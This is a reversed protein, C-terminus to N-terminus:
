PVLRWGHGGLRVTGAHSSSAGAADVGDLALSLESGARIRLAKGSRRTFRLRITRPTGPELLVVRASTGRRRGDSMSLDAVLNVRAAVAATIRVRVKGDRLLRSTSKVRASIEPGASGSETLTPRDPASPDLKVWRAVSPVGDRNLLFLMYYGPPAVGPSPPAKVNVGKGDVTRTIQLEVHRQQMDTAHTPASPAVLVARSLDPSSSAVGFEDGWAVTDPATTISPRPGRFLYPPSYVEGTDSTSFEGGPGSPHYDDGGSFVRGDPLLMAVSHYARDEQQAPGLRWSATAPDYLEVQRARGDSYTSYNNAEAPDFGRGGGVTVMSGDPLLVTNAYSRAVNLSPGDTWSPTPSSADISETTATAPYYSTNAPDPAGYGGVQEATYSGQPGGPVLVANGGTRALRAWSLDSWTLSTTNLIASHDREQGALLVNGDPLTFLHPFLSLDRDGSAEHTVTGLGSPSGGAPPSFLELDTNIETSGPASEDWGGVVATRGDALEVQTPYWRGHRLQPQETWTESWPDFTFLRNHGAYATYSDGPNDPWVLNGGAVLVAGTPLLSEGSCYIPAYEFTGDGDVDVLPPPVAKLSEPGTGKSPDWLAAQGENPRPVSGVAPFGWFLIKGTPLLASHVAFTPLPFPATTWAGVEEPTGAARTAARADASISRLSAKGRARKAARQRPTLARWAAM